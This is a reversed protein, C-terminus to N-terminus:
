SSPAEYTIRWIAGSFDDGLYLTGDGAEVIDLPRGSVEGESDFGTLFTKSSIKGANDWHLSLIGFGVRERRNWSGHQTVLAAGQLDPARSHRVFHIAMPSVHAPLNFDPKRSKAVREPEGGGLEPDPIDDGHLYPWGYFGGQVIVNVEDPPIDNGLRNRGMEVGYLVGSEPRWDFGVTNRLGTAFIEPEAGPQFRLMTARWPHEEICADCSAGVSVYFWGDPGKKITRSWYGDGTPLGDLVVEREGVVKGQAVDYRIRIVRSTEAIYLWEGDLLLGHPSRMDEMLTEVGDTRGDGNADARVLKMEVGPSSVIIDGKPTLTMGRARGLGGAYLNIKYGPPLKIRRVFAGESELTASMQTADPLMAFFMQSIAFIFVGIGAVIAGNKLGQWLTRRPKRQNKESM